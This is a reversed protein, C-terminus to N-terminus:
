KINFMPNQKLYMPYFCCIPLLSEPYGDEKLTDPIKDLRDAIETETEKIKAELAKREKSHLPNYPCWSQLFHDKRPLPPRCMFGSPSTSTCHSCACNRTHLGAPPYSHHNAACCLKERHFLLLYKSNSTM